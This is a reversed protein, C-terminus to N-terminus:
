QYSPVNCGAAYQKGENTVECLMYFCSKRFSWNIVLAYDCLGRPRGVAHREAM